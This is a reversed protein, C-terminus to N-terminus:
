STRETTASGGATNTAAQEGRHEAIDFIFVGEPSTPRQLVEPHALTQKTDTYGAHWHDVM